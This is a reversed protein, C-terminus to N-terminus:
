PIYKKYEMEKELQKRKEPIKFFELLIFVKWTAVGILWLIFWFRASFFPILQDTFFILLLAVLFNVWSLTFFKKCILYYLKFKKNKKLLWFVVASVLFLAALAILLKQFLPTLSGPNFNFWFNISLLNKM